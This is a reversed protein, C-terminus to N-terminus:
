FRSFQWLQGHYPRIVYKRLRSLTECRVGEGCEWYVQTNTYYISRRSLAREQLVWGRQSLPSLEVDQRFNDIDYCVFLDENGPSSLKMHNRKQPRSLFGDISSKASSAAVTCYANSFVREMRASEQYWDETDDQVICLSDIWIYRIGLGRTVTVADQFNRPLQDLDIARHLEDFNAKTTCFRKTPEVVGWCHSFAVYRDPTVSASVRLRLSNDHVELVRTPMSFSRAEETCCAKHNSDCEELWQKLLKFHAQSGPKLLRPLGLRRQGPPNSGSHSTILLTAQIICHRPRPITIVQNLM